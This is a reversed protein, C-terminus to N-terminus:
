DGRKIIIIVYEILLCRHDDVTGLVALHGDLGTQELVKAFYAASCFVVGPPLVERLVFFSSTYICL